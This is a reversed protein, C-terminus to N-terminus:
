VKEQLLQLKMNIIFLAMYFGVIVITAFIVYTFVNNIINEIEIVKEYTKACIVLVIIAGLASVLSCHLILQLKKNWVSYLYLFNTLRDAGSSGYRSRNESSM